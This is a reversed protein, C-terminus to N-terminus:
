EDRNSTSKSFIKLLSKFPASFVIENNHLAMNLYYVGFVFGIISIIFAWNTPSLGTKDILGRFVNVHSYLIRFGFSLFGPLLVLVISLLLKWTSIDKNKGM